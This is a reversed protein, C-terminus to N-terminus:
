IPKCTINELHTRIESSIAGYQWYTTIAALPLGPFEERVTEIYEAPPKIGKNPIKQTVFLNSKPSQSNQPTRKWQDITCCIFRTM